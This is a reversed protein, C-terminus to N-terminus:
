PSERGSPRRRLDFPFIELAAGHSQTVIAALDDYEGEPPVPTGDATLHHGVLSRERLPHLAPREDREAHVAVALIGRVLGGVLVLLDDPPGPFVSTLDVPALAKACRHFTAAMGSRNM